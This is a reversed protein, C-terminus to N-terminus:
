KNNQMYIQYNQLDFHFAQGIAVKDEWSMHSPYQLFIIFVFIETKSLYTSYNSHLYNQLGTKFLLVKKM